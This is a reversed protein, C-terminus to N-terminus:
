FCKQLFGSYLLPMGGAHHAETIYVINLFILNVQICLAPFPVTGAAQFHRPMCFNSCTFPSPARKGGHVALTLFGAQKDALSVQSTLHTGYVMHVPAYGGWAAAVYGFSSAVTMVLDDCRSMLAMDTLASELTGPNAASTQVKSGTTGPAIGNDAYVVRDKGLINIVQTAAASV